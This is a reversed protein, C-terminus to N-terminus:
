FLFEGMFLGIQLLDDDVDLCRSMGAITKRTRVCMQGDCCDDSCVSIESLNYSEQTTKSFAPTIKSVQARHLAMM